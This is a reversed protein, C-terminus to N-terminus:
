KNLYKEYLSFFKGFCNKKGSFFPLSLIKRSYWIIWFHFNVQRTLRLNSIVGIRGTLYRNITSTHLIPVQFVTYLSYTFKSSKRIGATLYQLPEVWQRQTAQMIAMCSRVSLRMWNSQKSYLCTVKVELSRQNQSWNLKQTWGGCGYIKLTLSATSAM